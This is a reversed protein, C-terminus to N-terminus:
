TGHPGDGSRFVRALWVLAPAQIMGMLGKVTEFWSLLSRSRGSRDRSGLAIRGLVFGAGAALAFAAPSTAAQKLTTSVRRGDAIISMTREQIRLEIMAIEEALEQDRMM